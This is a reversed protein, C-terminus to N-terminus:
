VGVGVGPEGVANKFKKQPVSFMRGQVQKTCRERTQFIVAGSTDKM